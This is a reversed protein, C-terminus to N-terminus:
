EKVSGVTTPVMTSPEPTVGGGCCPSDGFLIARIVEYQPAIRVWSCSIARIVEPSTLAVEQADGDAASRAGSAM